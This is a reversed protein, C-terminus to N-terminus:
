VLPEDLSALSLGHRRKDNLDSVLELIQPHSLILENFDDPMLRLLSTRKLTKVSASVPTRTLLSMEGFIEGERLTALLQGAQMVGAEGSLVVYLGNSPQGESLLTEGAPVDKARFREVLMRREQRSFPRFLQSTDMINALMRQRSFRRLAKLIAPHEQALPTLVKASIELVQTDDAAADVSASRPAGSLLAMEGFFAGDKLQALNREIGDEGRRTVNVSGECLVYFADGKAGQTLIREGQSFRKLPCKELLALFAEEPLDSFLPIKPLAAAAARDDAPAEPEVIELEDFSHAEAPNEGAADGFAAATARELAQLISDGSLELETFGEAVAPAPPRPTQPPPVPARPVPVPAPPEGSLQQETLEGFQMSPATEKPAEWLSPAAGASVSSAPASASPLAIVSPKGRASQPSEGHGNSAPAPPAAGAGAPRPAGKAKQAYLGALLRQMGQHAPDLELILKSAAIARPLFGSKAFQEAAQAYASIAKAKEGAKVWADGLRLRAQTDQPATACHEAYLEAAKEFKGKIYAEQARALVPTSM